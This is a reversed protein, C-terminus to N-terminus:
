KILKQFRKRMSAITVTQYEQCPFPLLPNQQLLFKQTIKILNYLLRKKVHKSVFFLNPAKESNLRSDVASGNAIFTNIM